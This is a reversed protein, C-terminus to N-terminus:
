PSYHMPMSVIPEEIALATRTGVVRCYGLHSGRDSELAEIEVVNDPAIVKHWDLWLQWGDAMTEASTVDILGTRQWHNRLWAASHLSWLEPTWWNRLHEPLAGEVEQVLGAGAIGVQGGLKVFRALYNLYFDDTGYYIFSHISVVADFFEAAFPLSRADAHIPFVGEDVMADRIRLLNESANFWLDTAWVEM